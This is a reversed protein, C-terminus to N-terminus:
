LFWEQSFQAVFSKAKNIFAHLRGFGGGQREVAGGARRPAGWARSGKRPAMAVGREVWGGLLVGERGGRGPLCRRLRWFGQEAKVAQLRLTEPQCGTVETCTM